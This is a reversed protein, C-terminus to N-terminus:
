ITWKIICYKMQWGSFLLGFIQTGAIGIENNGSVNLAECLSSDRLQSLVSVIAPMAKRIFSLM